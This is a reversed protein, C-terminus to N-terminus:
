VVRVKFARRLPGRAGERGRLWYRWFRWNLNIPLDILVIRELATGSFVRAGYRWGMDLDIIRM